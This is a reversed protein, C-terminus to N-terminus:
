TMIKSSQLRVSSQAAIIARRGDTNAVSWQTILTMPMSSMTRTSTAAPLAVALATVVAAVAGLALISKRLPKAAISKFM